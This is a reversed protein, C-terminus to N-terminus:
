EFEPDVTADAYNRIVVTVNNDAVEKQYAGTHKALMDLAKLGNVKDLDGKALEYMWKIEGVVWEPTIEGARAIEQQRAAVLTKVAPNSIWRDVMVDLKKEPVGIKRAAEYADGCEVYASVFELAREAKKMDM